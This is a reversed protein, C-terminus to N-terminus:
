LKDLFVLHGVSFVLCERRSRRQNQKTFIHTISHAFMATTVPYCFSFVCQTSVVEM